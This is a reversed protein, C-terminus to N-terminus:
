AINEQEAKFKFILGKCTDIRGKCCKSISSVDIKLHESASKISDFEGIWDWYEDFVIVPKSIKKNRTGHNSNEWETVWELNVVHNNHRNEDIHNVQPKNKPNSIFALAVLRHVLKTKNGKECCMTIQHYGKPNVYPKLIKGTKKNRVRGYNSIEYIPRVDKIFNIDKFIEDAYCM